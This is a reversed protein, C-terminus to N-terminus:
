LLPNTLPNINSNCEPICNSGNYDVVLEYFLILIFSDLAELLGVIKRM